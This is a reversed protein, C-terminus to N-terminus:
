TTTPDSNLMYGGFGSKLRSIVHNCFLAVLALCFTPRCMIGLSHEAHREVCDALDFLLEGALYNQDRAHPHGNFWNQCTAGQRTAKWSYTEARHSIDCSSLRM